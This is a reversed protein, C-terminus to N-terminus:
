QGAEKKRMLEAFKGRQEPFLIQDIKGQTQKSVQEGIREIIMIDREGSQSAEILLREFENQGDLIIKKVHERQEPNLQLVAAMEDLESDEAAGWPEANGPDPPPPPAVDRGGPGLATMDVPPPPAAAGYASGPVPKAAAGAVAVAKKLDANERELTAIRAELTRVKDQATKLKQTLDKNETALDVGGQGRKTPDLLLPPGKPRSSKQDAELKALRREADKWAAHTAMMGIGTGVFGIATAAAFIQVHVLKM